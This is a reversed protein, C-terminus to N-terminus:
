ELSRSKYYIFHAYVIYERLNEGAGQTVTKGIRYEGPGLQGYLWEWDLEQEVSGKPPILYGVEHFAYKGKITVPVAEWNGDVLQELWFADGFMLEDNIVDSDYQQFQITVGSATIVKVSFQLKIEDQWSEPDYIYAGYEKKDRDFRLTDLISLVQDEHDKWWKETKYTTAVIGECDGQFTIFDWQDQGDYIGIRAPCGAITASEESLGTGCVGFSDTYVLQVYGEATDEPYFCIGYPVGYGNEGEAEPLHSPLQMMSGMGDVTPLGCVSGSPDGGQGGEDARPPYLEYVWGEPLSLSIQGCPGGQVAETLAYSPLTKVPLPVGSGGSGADQVSPQVGEGSEVGQDSPQVGEGSGMDQVSLQVGEGVWVGNACGCFALACVLIGVVAKGKM